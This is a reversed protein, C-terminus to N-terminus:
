SMGRVAAEFTAVALHAADLGPDTLQELQLGNVMAVNALTWGEANIGANTALRGRAHAVMPEQAQRHLSLFRARPEPNRLVHAWFEFFVAMWGRDPTALNRRTLEAPGNEGHEKLVRAVWERSREVRREYIALFLDEKSAFNSYVAGKTYGAAAAVQDLSAGHFGQDRFVRDAAALLEERTRAKREERTLRAPTSVM